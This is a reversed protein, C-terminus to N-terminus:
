DLNDYEFDTRTLAPKSVFCLLPILNHGSKVSTLVLECFFSM